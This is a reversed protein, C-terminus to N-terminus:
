AYGYMEILFKGASYTGGTAAGAALYIYHNTLPVGTLTRHMDITWVASPIFLATAVALSTVDIGETGAASTSSYLDIDVAGGVPVELCTIKGGLITGSVAATIRGLYCNSAAADGIIDKDTADSEMGTLDVLFTTTIIEGVTVTSSKAIAGTGSTAGAGATLAPTNGDLDTRGSATISNTTVTGLASIGTVGLNGTVTLSSISVTPGTAGDYGVVRWAFGGAVDQVSVLDVFQGVATFDLSDNGTEDIASSATIDVGTAANTHLYILLRQNASAPDALTRTETGGGTLTILPIYGGSVGIADLTGTTLVDPIEALGTLHQLYEKRARTNASMM